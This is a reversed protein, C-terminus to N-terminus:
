AEPVTTPATPEPTVAPQEEPTDEPTDEVVMDRWTLYPPLPPPPVYGDMQDFRFSGTM